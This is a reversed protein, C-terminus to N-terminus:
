TTPRYRPASTSLAPWRWRIPDPSPRNFSLFGVRYVKGTQQAKAALPALAVGLTFIVALGILRM